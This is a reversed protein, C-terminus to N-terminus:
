YRSSTMSSLWHWCSYGYMISIRGWLSHDAQWLCEGTEDFMEKPTGLHDTVIPYFRAEGAKDAGTGLTLTEKALPNFTGPEFHWRSVLTAGSADAKWEEALAAGQWLYRIRTSRGAKGPRVCEKKVRRGFADCTYRWCAGDPTWTEVLRDLDDWRFHWTRPRFGNRFPTKTIVRGRGDHTYRTMGVRTVIDGNYDHSNENSRALNMLADYDYAEVTERKGHGVPRHIGTIGPSNWFIRPVGTL